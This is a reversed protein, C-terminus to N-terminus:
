IVTFIWFFSLIKNWFRDMNTIIYPNTRSSHNKLSNGYTISCYYSCTSNYSFIYFRISNNPTYRCFIYSIHM